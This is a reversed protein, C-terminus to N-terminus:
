SLSNININEKLNDNLMEPPILNLEKAKNIEDAAWDSVKNENYSVDEFINKENEYKNLLIEM